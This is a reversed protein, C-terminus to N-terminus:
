SPREPLNPRLGGRRRGRVAACRAFWCRRDDEFPLLYILRYMRNALWCASLKVKALASNRVSGAKATAAVTALGSQGFLVASNLGSVPLSMTSGEPNLTETKALPRFKGVPIAKRRCPFPNSTKTSSDPCPKGLTHLSCDLKPDPAKSEFFGNM